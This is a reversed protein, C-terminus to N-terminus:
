CGGFGAFEGSTGPRGFGLFCEERGGGEELEKGLHLFFHSLLQLAPPAVGSSAQCSLFSIVVLPM